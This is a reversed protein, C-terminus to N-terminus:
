PKMVKLILILIHVVSFLPYIKAYLALIEESHRAQPREFAIFKCRRRTFSSPPLHSSSSSTHVVIQQHPLLPPNTVSGKGIAMCGPSIRWPTFHFGLLQIAQVAGLGLHCLMYSNLTQFNLNTVPVPDSISTLYSKQGCLMATKTWPTAPRLSPSNTLTTSDFTGRKM